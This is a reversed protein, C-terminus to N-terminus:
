CVRVCVCDCVCMCVCDCVCVCMCVRVYVCVCMCVYGHVCACMCMICVHTCVQESVYMCVYMYVFWLVCGLFLSFWERHAVSVVWTWPRGSIVSSFCATVFYSVVFLFALFVHKTKCKNSWALVESTMCPFFCNYAWSISSIGRWRSRARDERTM